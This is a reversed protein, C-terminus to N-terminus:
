KIKWKLKKNDLFSDDVSGSWKIYKGGSLVEVIEMVSASKMIMCEDKDGEGEEVELLFWM